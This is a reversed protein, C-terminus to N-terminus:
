PTFFRVINRVPQDSVYLQCRGLISNGVLYSPTVPQFVIKPRYCAMHCQSGSFVPGTNGNEGDILPQLVRPQLVRPQLVRLPATLRYYVTNLPRRVLPYGPMKGNIQGTTPAGPPSTNHDPREPQNTVPAPRQGFTAPTAVLFIVPLFMHWLKM